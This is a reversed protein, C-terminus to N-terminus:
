ALPHPLLLRVITTTPTRLRRRGHQYWVNDPAQLGGLCSRCEMMSCDTESKNLTIVGTIMDVNCPFGLSSAILTSVDPCFTEAKHALHPDTLPSALVHMVLCIPIELDARRAAFPCPKVNEGKVRHSM